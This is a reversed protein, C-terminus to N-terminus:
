EEIYGEEILRKRLAPLDDSTLFIEQYARGYSATCRVGTFMQGVKAWNNVWFDFGGGTGVARPKQRTSKISNHRRGVRSGVRIAGIRIEKVESWAVLTPLFNALGEVMQHHRATVIKGQRRGPRKAM